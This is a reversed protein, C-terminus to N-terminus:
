CVHQNVGKKVVCGNHNNPEGGKSTSDRANQCPPVDIGVRKPDPTGGKLVTLIAERSQKVQFM